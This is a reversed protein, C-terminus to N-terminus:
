PQAAEDYVARLIDGAGQALLEDAVQIGLASPDIVSGRAEARLLLTGDPQGV